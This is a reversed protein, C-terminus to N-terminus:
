ITFSQLYEMFSAAVPRALTAVEEESAVEYDGELSFAVVSPGPLDPFRANDLCHLAGSYSTGIVVYGYRRLSEGPRSDTMHWEIGDVPLLCSHEGCVVQSPAFHRYFYSVTPVFPLGEIVELQRPSADRFSMHDGTVRLVMAAISQTLKEYVAHLEDNAM